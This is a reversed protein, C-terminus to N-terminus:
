GLAIAVIRSDGRNGSGNSPGTIQSTLTVTHTGAPVTTLVGASNITEETNVGATGDITAFAGPVVTGGVSAGITRDCDGGSSCRVSFTGMIIVLVKGPQSL